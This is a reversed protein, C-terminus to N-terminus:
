NLEVKEKLAKNMAEFGNRTNSNLSKWFLPVLLGSFNERHIFKTKNNDIQELQFIHEGDFIGPFLLNGLWRFETKPELIKVTPKFTMAKGGPPEILVQLQTGVKLEGDIKKIFPNWKPFSSFDTLIEWVQDITEDIEIVTNIEKM